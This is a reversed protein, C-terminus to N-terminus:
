GRRARRGLGLHLFLLSADLIGHMGRARGDLLADHRAAADRQQPGRRRELLELEVLSSCIPTLM